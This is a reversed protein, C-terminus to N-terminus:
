TVAQLNCVAFYHSGRGVWRVEPFHILCLGQQSSCLQLQPLNTNPPYLSNCSKKRKEVVETTEIKYFGMCPLVLTHKEEAFSIFQDHMQKKLLGAPTGPNANEPTKYRM